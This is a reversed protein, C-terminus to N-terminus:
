QMVRVNLQSVAEIRELVRLVELDRRGQQQIEQNIQQLIREARAQPDERQQRNRIILDAEARSGSTIAESMKLDGAAQALRQYNQAIGRTYQFHTILGEEALKKLRENAAEFQEVPNMLENDLSKAEQTLNQREELLSNEVRLADIRRLQTENAGNRALRNREITETDQGLLELNRSRLQAELNATGIANIQTDIQRLTAADAGQRALRNREVEQTSKGIERSQDNLSQLFRKAANQRELLQLHYIQKQSAGQLALKYIELQDSNLRLGVSQLNLRDTLTQVQAAMAATAQNAAQTSQAQEEATDAPTSPRAQVANPNFLFDSIGHGGFLSAGSLTGLTALGLGEFTGLFGNRNSFQENLAEVAPIAVERTLTLMLSQWQRHFRATSETLRDFSDERGGLLGGMRGLEDMASRIGGAGRRFVRDMQGGSEGFLRLLVADRSAEDGLASFRDAVELLVQDNSMNNLDQLSIGLMRFGQLSEQNGMRAQALKGSYQRLADGVKEVSVGVLEAQYELGQFINTSLSAGASQNFVRQADQFADRMGDTLTRRAEGVMGAFLGQWGMAIGKMGGGLDTTFATNKVLSNLMGRANSVFKAISSSASGLGTLLKSSNASLVVSLNAINTSM